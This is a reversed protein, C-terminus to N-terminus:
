AETKPPEPIDRCFGGCHCMLNRGRGVCSKNGCKDCQVQWELEDKPPEPTPPTLLPRGLIWGRLWEIEADKQALAAQADEFRVWAGDASADEDIWWESTGGDDGSHNCCARLDYRNM